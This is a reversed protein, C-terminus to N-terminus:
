PFMGSAPPTPGGKDFDFDPPLVAPPEAGPTAGSAQGGGGQSLPGAPGMPVITKTGDGNDATLWTIKPTPDKYLVVPKGDPGVMGLSGDNTEWYHPAAAKPQRRDYEMKAVQRVPESAYESMLARMVVDDSAPAGGEQPMLLAMIEDNEARNATEAKSLRRNELGASLGDLVRGLGQTWHGVPSFDSRGMRQAIERRRAIEEPTLRVGGKGWQFPSTPQQPPLPM